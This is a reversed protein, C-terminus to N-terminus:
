ENDEVYIIKSGQPEFRFPFPRLEPLAKMIDEHKEPPAYLLLFGGGGAGLIKGGIAGHKRATEYWTDIGSSSINSAMKRKELWGAHLIEGFSELDNRSLADRLESALGVMNHLNKRKEEQQETNKSQEVLISKSSRTIGTYLLLLHSELKTRADRSLIIRDVFVTEDPNFQIHQLGGYAAIYQDQKGIPKECKGIEVDCADKALRGASTYANKFAYLANLLGVTYSSSSGLGTGNSPVDAVSTIEIGGEIDLFKLAERILDHKLDDVREVIETESYSARIKNDFKKNITIYIYKNIATSVVAGPESKYFAPLDSGGGVFSTRLPTRSIIM